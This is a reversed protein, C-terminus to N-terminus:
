FSLVAGLTFVSLSRSRTPPSSLWPPPAVQKGPESAPSGGHSGVGRGGRGKGPFSTTETTKERVGTQRQGEGRRHCFPPWLGRRVRGQGQAQASGPQPGWTCGGPPSGQALSHGAEGPAGSLGRTEAGAGRPSRSSGLVAPGPHSLSPDSVPGECCPATGGPSVTAGM